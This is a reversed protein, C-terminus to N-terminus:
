QEFLKLIELVDDETLEMWREGAAPAAHRRRNWPKPWDKVRRCPRRGLEPSSLNHIEVLRVPMDVMTGAPRRCGFTVSQLVMALLRITEGIGAQLAGKCFGVQFSGSNM